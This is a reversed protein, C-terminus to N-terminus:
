ARCRRGNQASCRRRFPSDLWWVNICNIISLLSGQSAQKIADYKIGTFKECGSLSNQEHKMCLANPITRNPQLCSSSKCTFTHASIENAWKEENRSVQCNLAHSLSLIVDFDDDRISFCIFLIINWRIESRVTRDVVSCPLSLLRACAFIDMSRILFCRLHFFACAFQFNLM